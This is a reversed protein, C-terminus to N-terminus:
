GAKPRSNIALKALYLSTLGPVGPKNNPRVAQSLMGLMSVIKSIVPAILKGYEERALLLLSASLYEKTLVNCLFIESLIPLREDNAPMNSDHDPQLDVRTCCPHLERRIRCSINLGCARCTRLQRIRLREDPFM